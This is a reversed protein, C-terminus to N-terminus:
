EAELEVQKGRRGRRRKTGEYLKKEDRPENNNSTTSLHMFCCPIIHQQAGPISYQKNIIIIIGNAKHQWQTARCIAPELCTTKTIRIALLSESFRVFFLGGHAPSCMM